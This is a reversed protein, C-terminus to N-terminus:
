HFLKRRLSKLFERQSDAHEEIVQLIEEMRSRKRATDREDDDPRTNKNEPMQM